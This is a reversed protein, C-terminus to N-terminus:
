MDDFMGKPPGVIDDNKVARSLMWGDVGEWDVCIHRQPIHTSPKYRSHPTWKLTYVSLDAKCVVFQRLGELCYDAHEALEKWDQPGPYYYDAVYGGQKHAISTTNGALLLEDATLRPLIGALLNHWAQDLEPRPEGMFPNHEPGEALFRNLCKIHSVDVPTLPIFKDFFMALFAFSAICLGLLIFFRRRWVKFAHVITANEVENDSLEDDEQLQSYLPEKALSMKTARNSSLTLLNLICRNVGGIEHRIMEEVFNKVMQSTPPIGRETLRNIQNILVREDNARFRVKKHAFDTALQEVKEDGAQLGEDIIGDSHRYVNRFLQSIIDKDALEFEVKRDVRGPRILAGDLHEVHNTTMILIRGEQSAVGDLVNLLGSLTVKGRPKAKKLSDRQVNGSNEKETERSQTAGTADIDELLIVCRLPLEAFLSNLSGDDLSSLNLFYIDLDFCGAVSLSLSSKGTGPSGYFLYGRRYAIGRESYWQRSKPDLFSKIDKMLDRKVKENLIVTDLPRIDRATTRKWDGNRHEFVSTKNKILNLYETRCESFLQRLVEPSRGICSVSIAEEQCFRVEKQVCRFMLLHNKYWFFFSGTWPSYHLPKKLAGDSIDNSYARRRVGVSALSSRAKHAFPQSSVWTILMDYAENSYSVHVTSAAYSNSNGAQLQQLAASINTLGPFFIDVISIPHSPAPQSPPSYTNNCTSM